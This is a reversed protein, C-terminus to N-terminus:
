PGTERRCPNCSQTTWGHDPCPNQDRPLHPRGDYLMAADLGDKTGQATMAGIQARLHQKVPEPESLGSLWALREPSLRRMIAKGIRALLISGTSQRVTPVAEALVLGRVRRPHRAALELAVMGGLSHGVLGFRDPLLPEIADAYHEVTPNPISPSAGHGPLDPKIGDIDERWTSRSLGAGHLWIIDKTGTADNEGSSTEIM